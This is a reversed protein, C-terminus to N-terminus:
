STKQWVAPGSQAHWIFALAFPAHTLVVNLGAGTTLWAHLMVAVAGSHFFALVTSALSGTETHCLRTARDSPSPGLALGGLLALSLLSIGHHRAFREAGDPMPGPLHSYKGRLKIGGLILELITHAVYLAVVFNHSRAM